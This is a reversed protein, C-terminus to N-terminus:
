ELLLGPYERLLVNDGGRWIRTRSGPRIAQIVAVPRLVALLV